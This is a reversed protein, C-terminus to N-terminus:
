IGDARIYLRGDEGIVQDPKHWAWGRMKPNFRLETYGRAQAFRRLTESLPEPWRRATITTEDAM